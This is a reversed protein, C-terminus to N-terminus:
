ATGSPRSCSGKWGPRRGPTRRPSPQRWRYRSRASWCAPGPWRGARSWGSRPREFSLSSPSPSTTACVPMRITMASSWAWMRARILCANSSPPQSTQASPALADSASRSARSCRGSTTSSSIWIGPLPIWAATWILRARGCVAMTMSVCDCSSSSRKSERRAPAEPYRSLSVSGASRGPARRPTRAPSAAMGARNTVRMRSSNRAGDLRRKTSLDATALM